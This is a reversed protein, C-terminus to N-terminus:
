KNSDESNENMLSSIAMKKSEVAVRARETPSNNLPGNGLTGSTGGIQVSVPPIRSKKLYNEHELTSSIFKESKEKVQNYIDDYEKGVIGRETLANRVDYQLFGLLTRLNADTGSTLWPQVERFLWNNFRKNGNVEEGIKVLLRTGPDLQNAYWSIAYLHKAGGASLRLAIGQNYEHGSNCPLWLLHFQVPIPNPPTVMVKQMVLSTLDGYNIIRDQRNWELRIKLQSAIDLGSKALIDTGEGPSIYKRAAPTLSEYFKKCANSSSETRVELDGPNYGFSPIKSQNSPFPVSDKVLESLRDKAPGLSGPNSRYPLANPDTTIPPVMCLIVRLIKYRGGSITIKIGIGKLSELIIAWELQYIIYIILDVIFVIQFWHDFLPYGMVILFITYGLGLHFYDRWKVEIEEIIQIIITLTTLCNRTFLMFIIISIDLQVLSLLEAWGNIHAILLVGKMCVLASFGLFAICLWGFM